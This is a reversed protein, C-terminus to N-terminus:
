EAVEHLDEIADIRHHRRELLNASLELVRRVLEGIADPGELLAHDRHRKFLLVCGDRVDCAVRVVEGPLREDLLGCRHLFRSPGDEGFLHRRGQAAKGLFELLGGLPSLAPPVAPEQVQRKDCRRRDEGGDQHGRPRKRSARDARPSGSANL